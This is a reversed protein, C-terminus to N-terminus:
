LIAAPLAQLLFCPIPTAWPALKTWSRASPRLDAASGQTGAKKASEPNLQNRMRMATTTEMKVSTLLAGAYFPLCGGCAVRACHWCRGDSSQGRRWGSLWWARCVEANCGCLRQHEPLGPACLLSGTQPALLLVKRTRAETKCTPQTYTSM